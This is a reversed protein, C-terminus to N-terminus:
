HSQYMSICLVMSKNESSCFRNSLLLISNWTINMIEPTLSYRLFDKRVNSVLKWIKKICTNRFYALFEVKAKQGDPWTRLYWTQFFYVESFHLEACQSQGITPRNVERRFRWTVRAKVRGRFHWNIILLLM